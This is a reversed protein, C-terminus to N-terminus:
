GEMKYGVGWVTRIYRPHEASDKMKEGFIVSIYWLQIIATLISREGSM